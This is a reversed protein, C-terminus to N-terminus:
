SQTIHKKWERSLWAQPEEMDVHYEALRRIEEESKGRNEPNNQEIPIRIRLEMGRLRQDWINIAGKGFRTYVLDLDILGEKVAWGIMNWFDSVMRRHNRKEWDQEIEEPPSTWVTILAKHMEETAYYRSLEFVVDLKRSKSIESLQRLALFATAAILLLTFFTIITYVYVSMVSLHNWGENSTILFYPLVSLFLFAPAGILIILPLDTRLLLNFIDKRREM